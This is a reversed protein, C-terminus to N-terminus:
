NQSAVFCDILKRAISLKKPILPLNDAKFWQAELIENDDIAIEGAEYEATFGLMLSDPFPWPQSGFYRINNVEINVEELVERKVCDEITEGPEVFGALVSFMKRDPFNKGRALLIKNGHTVAMIVAPSIRPYNILGCAPCKKSRENSLDKILNGCKGCYKNDIDWQLIHRGYGAINWFDVGVTSFLDRFNILKYQDSLEPKLVYAGSCPIGNFEGLYLGGTNIIKQSDNHTLLPIALGSQPLKKVIIRNGSYIFWYAKDTKKHEQRNLTKIFSM